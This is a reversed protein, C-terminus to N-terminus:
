KYKNVYVLNPTVKRTTFKRENFEHSFLYIDDHFKVVLQDNTNRKKKKRPRNFRGMGFITM